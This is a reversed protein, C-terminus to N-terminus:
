DLAVTFERERTFRQEGHRFAVFFARAFAAFVAITITTAVATSATTAVAITTTATIASAVSATTATSIAAITAAAAVSASLYNRYHSILFGIVVHDPKKISISNYTIKCDHTM